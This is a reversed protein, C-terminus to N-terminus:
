ELVEIKAYKVGFKIASSKEVMWVDIKDPNKPNMRDRVVFVRDGFYEPIRVKTGFKLFNAAITDEKGHDCVNFGNATTCPSADCQSAESNYATIVHYSTKLIKSKPNLKTKNVILNQKTGTAELIEESQIIEKEINYLEFNEAARIYTEKKTNNLTKVAESAYVPAPYFQINFLIALVLLIIVKKNKKLHEEKNSSHYDPNM